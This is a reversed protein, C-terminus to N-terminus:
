NLRKQTNQLLRGANEMICAYRHATVKTYTNLYKYVPLLCLHSTEYNAILTLEAELKSYSLKNDHSSSFHVTEM